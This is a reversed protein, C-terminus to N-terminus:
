GRVFEGKSCSTWFFFFLGAFNGKIVVSQTANVTLHDTFYKKAGLEDINQSLRLSPLFCIALCNGLM